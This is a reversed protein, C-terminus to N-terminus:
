GSYHYPQLQATAMWIQRGQTSVRETVTQIIVWKSCKWMCKLNTLYEMGAHSPGTHACNHGCYFMMNLGERINVWGHMFLPVTRVYVGLLILGPKLKDLCLLYVWFQPPLLYLHSCLQLCIWEFPISKGWEPDSVTCWLLSFDTESKM